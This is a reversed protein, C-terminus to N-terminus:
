GVRQTKLVEEVLSEYADPADIIQSYGSTDVTRDHIVRRMFICLRWWDPYAFLRGASALFDFDIGGHGNKRVMDVGIGHTRYRWGTGPLEHHGRHEPRLVNHPSDLGLADVLIQAGMDRYATWDTILQKAADIDSVTEIQPMVNSMVPSPLFSEWKVFRALRGGTCTM